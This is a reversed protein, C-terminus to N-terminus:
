TTRRRRSLARLWEDKEMLRSWRRDVAKSTVGEAEAIEENQWDSAKAWIIRRDRAEMQALERRVMDTRTAFEEPGMGPPASILSTLLGNLDTGPDDLRTLAAWRQEEKRQRTFENVFALVCGTVFYTAMSARGTPDWGNGDLARRRFTCLGVAVSMTKLDARLEASRQLDALEGDTPNLAIGKEATVAFIKGSRLWGGMVGLGHRALRDQVREWHPGEFRAKQLLEFLEADAARGEDLETM